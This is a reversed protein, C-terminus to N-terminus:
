LREYASARWLDHMHDFAVCDAIRDDLAAARPAYYGGFGVGGVAVAREDVTPRELLWDLAPGVVHEWDTRATLGEERPPAGQGPGEFLLVDYGRALAEPVGCLFYLEEILSDFGGLCVVAPRLGAGDGEFFYGPLTTDEYPIAVQEPPADLLSMGARFAERSSECTPQHRPDDRALFFEATRYYTQARLFAVRTTRDHGAARATEATRGVREATRCWEAHWGETDGDDIREATVLM